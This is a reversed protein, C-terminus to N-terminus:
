MCVWVWGCVWVTSFGFMALLYLNQDSRHGKMKDVLEQPNSYPEFHKGWHGCGNLNNTRSEQITPYTDGGSYYDVKSQYTCKSATPSAFPEMVNPELFKCQKCVALIRPLMTPMNTSFRRFRFM